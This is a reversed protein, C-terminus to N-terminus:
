KKVEFMAYSFAPLPDLTIKTGELKGSSALFEVSKYEEDLLVEANDIEDASFNFVCVAMENEATNKKALLYVYPNGSTHAPLKKGCLATYVYSLEKQREYNCYYSNNGNFQTYGYAEFNLVCLKEGNKNEYIYSGACESDSFHLTSRIEAKPSVTINRSRVGSIRVNENNTFAENSPIISQGVTVLGVDVGQKQLQIAGDIDTILGYKAANEPIYKVNEGFAIGVGEGYYKTPIANCCLVKSAIPFFLNAVFETGEWLSPIDSNEYKQPNEYIRVGCAQKNAFTEEIKKYLNLNKEHTCIYKREYNSTSVYDFMYKLIGTLTGDARLALDYMELYSSPTYYRPRPYTDGESIIEMDDCNVCWSRELRMLEIVDSLSNGWANQAAWYPAGILRLLPKTNGALARAIEVSDAGDIDWSSICSCVGLRINADVDNIVERLKHAFDLLSKRNARIFASRYKNKGGSLLYDKIDSSTLKEGLDESILKMHCPCTCGVQVNFFFGLRYDDDLLIFDPGLQALSRIFSCVFKVFQPDAPCCEDTTKKGTPSEIKTYTENNLMFSWVWFGVEFGEKQFAKLIKNAQALTQENKSRDDSMAPEGPGTSIGLMIRQANARKADAIAKEIGHKETTGTIFPVSVTYM